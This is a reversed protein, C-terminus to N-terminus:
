QKGRRPGSTIVADLEDHMVLHALRQGAAPIGNMELTKALEGRTLYSGGRLAEEMVAQSRRLIPPDIELRRGYPALLAKVRPATLDLLWRIDDPLVFPWTPRMVHTRLIAA